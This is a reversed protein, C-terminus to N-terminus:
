EELGRRRRSEKFEEKIEEIIDTGHEPLDAGVENYPVFPKDLDVHLVGLPDLELEPDLAVAINFFMTEGVKDYNAVARRLKAIWGDLARMEMPDLKPGNLTGGGTLSLKIVALFEAVDVCCNRLDAAVPEPEVNKAAFDGLEPEDEGEELEDADVWMVAVGPPVDEISQLCGGGVFVTMVHRIGKFEEITKM